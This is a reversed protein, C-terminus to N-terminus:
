INEVGGQAVPFLAWARRHGCRLLDPNCPLQFFELYIDNFRAKGCGTFAVGLRYFHDSSLNALASDASQCPCVGTVDVLCGVGHLLGICRANMSKNRRRRDVHLGLKPHRWLVHEFFRHLCNALGSVSHVINFERGLVRAAGIFVEEASDEFGYDLGTRPRYIDWVGDAVGHRILKTVHEFAQHLTDRIRIFGDKRDVTM